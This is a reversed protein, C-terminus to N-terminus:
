DIKKKVSKLFKDRKLMVIHGCGRCKIKFDIGVRIIEWSNEGCPHQKKTVVYDGVKYGSVSKSVKEENGYNKIDM